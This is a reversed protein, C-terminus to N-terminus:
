ILRKHKNLIIGSTSFDTVYTIFKAEPKIKQIFFLNWNIDINVFNFLAPKDDYLYNFPDAEGRLKKQKSNM